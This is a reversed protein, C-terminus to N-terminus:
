CLVAPARQLGFNSQQQVAAQLALTELIPVEVEMFAARVESAYHEDTPLPAGAVTNYDWGVADIPNAFRDDFFDRWQYGIATQVAGAPVQFLEGTLVTEFIDLDEKQTLRNKDREFLWETVAVSNDTKGKVFLPSRPDASGFPNWYENGNPGGLGQLALQLKGLHVSYSDSM